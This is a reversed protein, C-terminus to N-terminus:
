CNTGCMKKIDEPANEMGQEWLNVSHLTWRYGWRQERYDWSRQGMLRVLKGKFMDDMYEPDSHRHTFTHSDSAGCGSLEVWVAHGDHSIYKAIINAYPAHTGYINGIEECTTLSVGTQNAFM